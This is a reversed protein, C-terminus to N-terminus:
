TIIIWLCVALIAVHLGIMVSELPCIEIYRPVFYLAFEIM